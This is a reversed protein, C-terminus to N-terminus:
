VGGSVPPIFAVEDGEQLVASTDAYEANVAISLTKELRKLAPFRSFVAQYMQTVTSGEDIEIDTERCGVIDKCSAFFLLRVRM